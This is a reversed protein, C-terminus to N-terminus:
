YSITESMSLYRVIALQSYSYYNNTVIILLIIYCAPREKLKRTSSYHVEIDHLHMAIIKSMKM